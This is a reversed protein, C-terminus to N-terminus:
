RSSYLRCTTAASGAQAIPEGWPPDEAAMVRNSCIGGVAMAGGGVGWARDLEPTRAEWIRDAGAPRQAERERMDIAARKRLDMRRSSWRRWQWRLSLAM